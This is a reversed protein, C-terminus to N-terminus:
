EDDDSSEKWPNPGGLAARIRGVVRRVRLDAANPTIDWELALVAIAARPDGAYVFRLLDRDSQSLAEYAKGVDAVMAVLNMGDGPKGGGSPKAEDYAIGKPERWDPDFHLQLMDAIMPISYFFEDEVEYGVLQAKEKRAYKEGANRLSKALLRQVSKPHHQDQWRKLSRHGSKIFWIYLEQQVDEYEVYDRYRSRIQKAVSSVTSHVVDPIETVTSM